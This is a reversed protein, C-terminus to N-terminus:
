GPRPTGLPATDTPALPAQAASRAIGEGVPQFGHRTWATSNKTGDWVGV